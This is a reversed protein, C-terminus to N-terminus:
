NLQSKLTSSSYVKPLLLEVYKIKYKDCIQWEPHTERNRNERGAKDGSNFFLLEDDPYQQALDALTCAVTRDADIAIEVRDVGKIHSMIFARHEQDMFPKSGKMAVQKDSNVIVTLHDCEKRAADIMELHGRHVPNFYGSVIGRKM